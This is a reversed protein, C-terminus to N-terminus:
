TAAQARRVADPGTPWRPKLHARTGELKLNPRQKASARERPWHRATGATEGTSRGHGKAQAQTQRTPNSPRRSAARRCTGMISRLQPGHIDQVTGPRRGDM